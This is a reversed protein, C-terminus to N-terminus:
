INFICTNITDMRTKGNWPPKRMKEEPVDFQVGHEMMYVYMKTLRARREMQEKMLREKEKHEVLFKADRIIANREEESMPDKKESALAIIIVFFLIICVVFFVIGTVSM